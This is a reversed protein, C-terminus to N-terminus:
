IAVPVSRQILFATSKTTRSIKINVNICTQLVSFLSNTLPM